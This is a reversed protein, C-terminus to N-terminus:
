MPREGAVLSVTGIVARLALYGESVFALRCFCQELLHNESGMLSDESFAM